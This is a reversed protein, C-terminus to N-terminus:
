QVKSITLRLFLMAIIRFVVAYLFLLGICGWLGIDYHYREYVKQDEASYDSNDEFENRLLAEMSYRVPSLYQLWRLWVYVDGLNVFYGGFIFIPLMFM